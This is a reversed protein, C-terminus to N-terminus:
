FDDLSIESQHHSTEQQQSTHSLTNQSVSLQEQPIYSTQQLFSSRKRKFTTTHESEPTYSLIDSFNELEDSIEKLKYSAEICTKSTKTQLLRPNLNVKNTIPSDLRCRDLADADRLIIALKQMITLNSEDINYQRLKIPIDEQKGNHCEILAQIMRIEEETYSNGEFNRLNMTSIKKAGIKEHRFFPLDVSTIKGVDHLLSSTILIDLLRKDNSLGQQKAIYTAWFSVRQFHSKGHHAVRKQINPNKEYTEIKQKLLSAEESSNFEALIEKLSLQTLGKTKLYAINQSFNFDLYPNINGFGQNLKRDLKEKSNEGLAKRTIRNFKNKISTILNKFLNPFNKRLNQSAIETEYMNLNLASIAKAGPIINGKKTYLSNEIRQRQVEDLYDQRPIYKGPSNALEERTRKRLIIEPRQTIENIIPNGLHDRKLDPVVEVVKMHNKPVFIGEHKIAEDHFPRFKLNPLEDDTLHIEFAYLIKDPEFLEAQFNRLNRSYDKLSPLGAFSFIGPKGCYQLRKTLKSSYKLYQTKKIQELSDTNTVFHYLTNNNEKIKDIQADTLHINFFRGTYALPAGLISIAKKIVKKGTNMHIIGKLIIKCNIFINKLILYFIFLLAPAYVGAKIYLLL